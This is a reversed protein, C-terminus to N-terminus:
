DAGCVDDPDVAFSAGLCVLCYEAGRAPDLRVGHVSGCASCEGGGLRDDPVGARRLDGRTIIGHLAGEGDVIPLCGIGLAALAAAAEGFTTTPAAFYIERAMFDAIPRAPDAGVLDCRCAVGIMRGEDMVVLHRVRARRALWDADGSPARPGVTLLVSADTMRDRVPDAHSCACLVTVEDASPGSQWGLFHGCRVCDAGTRLPKRCAMRALLGSGAVGLTTSEGFFVTPSPIAVETRGKADVRFIGM